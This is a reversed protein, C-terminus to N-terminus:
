ARRLRLYEKSLMAALDGAMCQNQALVYADIGAQHMNKESISFSLKVNHLQECSEM